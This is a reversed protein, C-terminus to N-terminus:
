VVVFDSGALPPVDSLTAILVAAGAGTGDADWLLSGDDTDYLFQGGTGTASPNAGSVLTVTGGATLGGGFGSASIRIQDIGSVFEIIQDGGESASGYAIIDAGAAGVLVDSGLGGTLVDNGEGGVLFDDDNGGSLIDNGDDGGMFDMGDGGSLTDNGSDGFINDDGSEGALQDDGGGGSIQDGDNGGQIVDNGDDGFLNDFGDGGSITDAGALGSVNDNGAFATITDAGITGTLTDDGNTGNITEGPPATGGPDYGPQFNAETFDGVTTNQFLILTEWDSGTGDGDRDWELL